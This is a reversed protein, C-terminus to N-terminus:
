ADPNTFKDLYQENTLIEFQGNWAFPEDGYYPGVVIWSNKQVSNIFKKDTADFVWLQEYQDTFFLPSGFGITDIIEQQNTGDFQISAYKPANREPYVKPM